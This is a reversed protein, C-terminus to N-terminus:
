MAAQVPISATAYFRGVLESPHQETLLKVYQAALRNSGGERLEGARARLEEALMRERLEQMEPTDAEPEDDKALAALKQRPRLTPRRVHRAPRMSRPPGFAAALSLVAAIRRM